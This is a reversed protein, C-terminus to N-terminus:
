LSRFNLFSIIELGFFPDLGTISFNVNECFSHRIDPLPFQITCNCIFFQCFKQFYRSFPTIELIQCFPLGWSLSTITSGIARTTEHFEPVRKRKM